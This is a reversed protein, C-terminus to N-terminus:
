SSTALALAMTSPFFILGSKWIPQMIAMHGTYGAVQLGSSMRMASFAM